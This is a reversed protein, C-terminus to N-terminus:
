IAPGMRHSTNHAAITLDNLIKKYEKKNMRYIM